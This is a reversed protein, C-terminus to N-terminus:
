ARPPDQGEGGYVLRPDHPQGCKDCVCRAGDGAIPTLLRAEVRSSRQADDFQVVAMQRGGWRSTHRVLGYFTGIRRGRYTIRDGTKM